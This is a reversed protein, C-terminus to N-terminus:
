GRGQYRLARMRLFYDIDDQSFNRDDDMFFFEHMHFSLVNLLNWVPVLMATIILNDRVVIVLFDTGKRLIYYDSSANWAKVGSKLAELCDEKAINREFCREIGHTSFRIGDVQWLWSDDVTEDESPSHHYEAEQGPKSIIRATAGRLKFNLSNRYELGKLYKQEIKKWYYFDLRFVKAFKLAIAEDIFIKNEIILKITAEDVGTKRSFSAITLGRDTIAESLTSGPSALHMPQRITPPLAPDKRQPRLMANDIHKAYRNNKGKLPILRAHNNKENNTQCSM